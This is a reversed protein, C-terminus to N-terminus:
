EGGESKDQKVELEKIIDLVQNHIRELYKSVKPLPTKFREIDEYISTYGELSKLKLLIRQEKNM